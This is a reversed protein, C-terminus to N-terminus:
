KSTMWYLGVKQIALVHDLARHQSFYAQNGYGQLQISYMVTYCYKTCVLKGFHFHQLVPFKHIVEIGDGESILQQQQKNYEKWKELTSEVSASGGFILIRDVENLEKFHNTLLACSNMSSLFEYVSVYKSSVATILLTMLLKSVLSTMLLKSVLSSTQNLWETTYDAVDNTVERESISSSAGAVEMSESVGEVLADLVVAEVRLGGEVEDGVFGEGRGEEVVEEILQLLINSSSCHPSATRPLIQPPVIPSTYLLLRPCIASGTPVLQSM